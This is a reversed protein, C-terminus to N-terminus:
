GNNNCLFLVGVMAVCADGLSLTAAVVIGVISFSFALLRRRSAIVMWAAIVCVAVIIAALSAITPFIRFIFSFL